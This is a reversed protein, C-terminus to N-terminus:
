PQATPTYRIVTSAYAMRVRWDNTLTNPDLGSACQALTARSPDDVQGSARRLWWVRVDARMARGLYLWELRVNTCYHMDVPNTTDQGYYDFAASEGSTPEPVPVFWTAGTGASTVNNLYQTNVLLTPDAVTTSRTWNLADRRLREVWRQALQAGTTVERAEMNGRTSAQIMAMIGVAGATLVGIAMMVEIITYGATNRSTRRRGRGQRRRQSM